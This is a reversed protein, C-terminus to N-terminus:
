RDLNNCSILIQSLDSVGNSAYKTRHDLAHKARQKWNRQAIDMHQYGHQKLFELIALPPMNVTYNYSFWYSFGNVATRKCTKCPETAFSRQYATQPAPPRQKYHPRPLPSEAMLVQKLQAELVAVANNKAYHDIYPLEQFFDRPLRRQFTSYVFIYNMTSKSM